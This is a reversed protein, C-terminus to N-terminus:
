RQVLIRRNRASDLSNAADNGFRKESAQVMLIDPNSKRYPCTGRRSLKPRDAMRGRMYPDVTMWLNNVQVEGLGPGPVSTTIIEFNDATPMGVPRSKLRVERSTVM